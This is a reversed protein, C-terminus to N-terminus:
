VAAGELSRVLGKVVAFMLPRDDGAMSAAMIEGYPPSPRPSISVQSMFGFRMLLANWLLRSMRGNGNLFPHIRIVGGIAKAMMAGLLLLRQQPLLHSWNVELVREDESVGQFHKAIESTVLHFPAGPIGDVQVNRGLCVQKTDACRFNGAYYDVPVLGSFMSHHWTRVMDQDPLSALCEQVAQIFVEKVRDRFEGEKGPPPEGDWWPCDYLVKETM